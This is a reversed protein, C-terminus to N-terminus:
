LCVWVEMCKKKDSTVISDTRIYSPGLWWYAWNLTINWAEVTLKPKTCKCIINYQSGFCWRQVLGHKMMEWVQMSWMRTFKLWQLIEQPVTAVSIKSWKGIKATKSVVDERVLLQVLCLFMFIEFWAKFDVELFIKRTKLKSRSLHLHQRHHSKQMSWYMNSFNQETLNLFCLGQGIFAFGQNMLLFNQKSKMSCFKHQLWGQDENVIYQSMGFWYITDSAQLFAGSVCKFFAYM